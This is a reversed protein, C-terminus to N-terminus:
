PDSGRERGPETSGLGMRRMPAAQPLWPGQPRISDEPASAGATFPVYIKGHWAECPQAKRKAVARTSGPVVALIDVKRSYWAYPQIHCPALRMVDIGYFAKLTHKYTTVQSDKTQELLAKPVCDNCVVIDTTRYGGVSISLPMTANPIEGLKIDVKLACYRPLALLEPPSYREQPFLTICLLGLAHIRSRTSKALETLKKLIDPASPRATGYRQFLEEAEIGKMYESRFADRDKPEYVGVLESLNRAYTKRCFGESHDDARYGVLPEGSYLEWMVCYWSFVDTRTDAELCWLVEPSRNTRTGRPQDPTSFNCATGFDSLKFAVLMPKRDKDECVLINRHTIDRHQMARGHLYELARLTDLEVLPVYRTDQDMLVSFEHLSCVAMEMIAVARGGLQHGPVHAYRRFVVTVYPVSWNVMQPFLNVKVVLNDRIRVIVGFGGRGLVASQDCLLPEIDIDGDDDDSRASESRSRMRNLLMEKVDAYLTWQSSNM